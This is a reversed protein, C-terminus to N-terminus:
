WTRVPRWTAATSRRSDAPRILRLVDVDGRLDVGHARLRGGRVDEESLGLAQVQTGLAGDLVLIWEALIRGLKERAEL